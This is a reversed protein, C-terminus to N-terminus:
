RRAPVRRFVVALNKAAKLIVVIVPLARLPNGHIRRREHFGSCGLSIWKTRMKFGMKAAKKVKGKASTTKAPLVKEAFSGM